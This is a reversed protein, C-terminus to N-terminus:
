DGGGEKDISLLPALRRIAEDPTVGRVHIRKARARAGTRLTIATRPVGLNAALLRVLERNAADDVPRAALRVALAGGHVGAVASRKAGPRAYVALEVGDPRPTLWPAEAL